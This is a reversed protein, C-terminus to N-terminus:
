HGLLGLAPPVRESRPLAVKQCRSFIRLLLGDNDTCQRQSSQEESGRSEGPVCRLASGGPSEWARRRGSDQPLLPPPQLPPSLRRGVATGQRGPLRFRVDSALAVRAEKGTLQPFTVRRLLGVKSPSMLAHKPCSGAPGGQQAVGQFQIAGRENGRSLLPKVRRFSM